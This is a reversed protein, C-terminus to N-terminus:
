KNKKTKVVIEDSEVEKNKNEDIGLKNNIKMKEYEPNMIKMPTDIFLVLKKTTYAYEYTIGSWDTIMLDANFVIDNSSFYKIKIKNIDPQMKVMKISNKQVWISIPLLVIKSFLTFLIIAIGYNTFINYCFLM